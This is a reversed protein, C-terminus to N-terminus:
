VNEETNKNNNNKAWTSVSKSIETELKVCERRYKQKNKPFPLVLFQISGVELIGGTKLIGSVFDEILRLCM